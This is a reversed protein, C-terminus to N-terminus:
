VGHFNSSVNTLRFSIIYIYVQRTQENPVILIKGKNPKRFISGSIGFTTSRRNDTEPKIYIGNETEGIGDDLKIERWTYQWDLQFKIIRM